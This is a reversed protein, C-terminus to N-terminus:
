KNVGKGSLGGRAAHGGGYFFLFGYEEGLSGDCAVDYEEVVELRQSSGSSGGGSLVEGERAVAGRGVWGLNVSVAKELFYIVLHGRPIGEGGDGIGCGYGVELRAVVGGLALLTGADWNGRGRWM